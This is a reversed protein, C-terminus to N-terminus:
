VRLAMTASQTASRTPIMEVLAGEDLKGSETIKVRAVFM